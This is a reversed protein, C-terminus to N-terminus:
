WDRDVESYGGSAPARRQQLNRKEEDLISQADGQATSRQKMEKEAGDQKQLGNQSGQVEKKQEHDQGQGEQANNQDRNQGKDKNPGEAEQSNQGGQRGKDGSLSALARNLEDLANKQNEQAASTQMGTLKGAANEQEDAATELYQKAKDSKSAEQASPSKQVPPPLETALDRTEKEVTKQDKALESIKNKLAPSDGQQTKEESFDHNRDLLEQQQQILKKLKEATAQNKEVAEKHKNIEDLINKMVLRVVEINEAAEKIGPDLTLAEQYHRITTQCGELAKNLDSDKQRQAESFSCNGLNFRAMAELKIDKTKLAANEFAEKAKEYDGKRYYAAGKDFYIQPSEPAEVSAEGYASLAEDYKGALYLGNGKSVLEAPSAAHTEGGMMLSFLIMLGLPKFM